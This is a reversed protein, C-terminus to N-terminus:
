FGRIYPLRAAVARVEDFKDLLMATPNWQGSLFSDRVAPPLTGTMTLPGATIAGTAVDASVVTEPQKEILDQLRSRSFDSLELALFRDLRLGARERSVHLEIM